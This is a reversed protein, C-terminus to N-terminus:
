PRSSPALRRLARDDARSTVVRRWREIVARAITGATSEASLSSMLPGSVPFGPAIGVHRGFDQAAATFRSEVTWFGPMSREEQPRSHLPSERSPLEISHLCVRQRHFHNRTALDTGILRPRKCGSAESNGGTPSCISLLWSPSVFFATENMKSRSESWSHRCIACM